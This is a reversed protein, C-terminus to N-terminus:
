VPSNPDRVRVGDLPSLFPRADTTVFLSLSAEDILGRM